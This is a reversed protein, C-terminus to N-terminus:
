MPIPVAVEAVTADDGSLSAPEPALVLRDAPGSAEGEAQVANM